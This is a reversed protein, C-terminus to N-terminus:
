CRNDFDRLPRYLDCAVAVALRYRNNEAFATLKGELSLAAIGTDKEINGTSYIM